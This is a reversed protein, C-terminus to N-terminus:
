SNSFTGSYLARNDLAKLNAKGDEILSIYEKKNKDVEITFINKLEEDTYDHFYEQLQPIVKRRMVTKLDEFNEIGLFYAHGITRDVTVKKRIHMNLNTLFTVLNVDGLKDSVKKLLNPQPALEIFDFRRRLAADLGILSRDATNMTGIIYLNPPLIFRKKTYPLTVRVPQDGQNIKEPDRARKSTEILTILEGFIRAVNGRNIEDIILVYSPKSTGDNKSDKHNNIGNKFYDNVTETFKDKDDDVNFEVAKGTLWAYTARYSIRKLIGAVIKYSVKLSEDNSLEAKLGEVFDEYSYNQHFTTFEIQGKDIHTNFSKIWEKYVDGNVETFVEGNLTANAYQNVQEISPDVVALALATLTHTKGTGPPGYLISNLNMNLKVKRNENEDQDEDDSERVNPNNNKYIKIYEEIMRPSIAHINAPLIEKDKLLQIKEDTLRDSEDKENFHEKYIKTLFNALFGNELLPHTVASNDNESFPLNVPSKYYRRKIEGNKFEQPGCNLWDEQNFEIKSAQNLLRLDVWVFLNPDVYHLGVRFEGVSMTKGYRGIVNITARKPSTSWGPSSHVALPMLVTLRKVVELLSKRQQPNDIPFEVAHVGYNKSLYRCNEGGFIDSDFYYNRANEDWAM